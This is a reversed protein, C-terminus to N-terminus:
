YLYIIIVMKVVPLVWPKEKNTRYAGVGVNVKKPYKDNIYATNLHFISDPQALPVNEFFAIFSM